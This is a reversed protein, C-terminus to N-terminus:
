IQLCVTFIIQEPLSIQKALLQQRQSAWRRRQGLVLLSPECDKM